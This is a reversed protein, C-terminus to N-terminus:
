LAIIQQLLLLSNGLYCLSLALLNILIIKHFRPFSRRNFVRIAIFLGFLYGLHGPLIYIDKMFTFSRGSYSFLIIMTLYSFTIPLLCGGRDAWWKWAFNPRSRALIKTLTFILGSLMLFTSLLGLLLTCRGAWEVVTDRRTWPWQDFYVFHYRGYLQSWLSTRHFPIPKQAGTISPYKLMDIIRFTFFSDVISIVGARPTYKREIFSVPDEPRFNVAGPQVTDYMKRFYTKYPAMSEPVVFSVIMFTSFVACLGLFFKKKKRASPCFICSYVLTAMTGSFLALSNGKSCFSFFMALSLFTVDKTEAKQIFRM